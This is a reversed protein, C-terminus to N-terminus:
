SPTNIGGVLEGMTHCLGSHVNFRRPVYFYNNDLVSHYTCPSVKMKWGGFYYLDSIVVNVIPLCEWGRMSLDNRIPAM